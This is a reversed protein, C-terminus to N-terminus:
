NFDGRCIKTDAVTYMRCTGADCGLGEACQGHSECASGQGMRPTCVSTQEDCFLGRMCDYECAEGAAPLQRCVDDPFDCFLGKDRDCYALAPGPAAETHDGGQTPGYSDRACAEGEEAESLRRCVGPQPSGDANELHLCLVAGGEHRCASGDNCPEGEGATGQFSDACVNPYADAARCGDAVEHLAAVCSQFAPQYLAVTGARVEAVIDFQREAEAECDALVDSAAADCCGRAMACFADIFDDIALKSTAVAESGGTTDAGTKDGCGLLVAAVAFLAHVHGSMGIGRTSTGADM